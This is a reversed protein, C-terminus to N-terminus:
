IELSVCVPYHDSLYIGNYAESWCEVKCNCDEVRLDSFIYDIKKFVSAKGFGHFTPGSEATLDALKVNEFNECYKIAESDPLSNLDGLIFVPAEWKSKCESVHALVQKIGLIRAMDDEYHDLHNNFVWFPRDSGKLRVLVQQCIRPCMSQIEYRSGPVYPTKSLWFVDFGMLVVTEKRLAVALGEGGFDADRGNFIVHYEPISEIIDNVIESTAEQFGIVDPKEAKIKNRVMASRHIYSNVGDGDYLYRLNFTVIKCKMIIVM